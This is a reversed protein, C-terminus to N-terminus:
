HVELTVDLLGALRAGADTIERELVQTAHDADGSRIAGLIERHGPEYSGVGAKALKISLLYLVNKTQLNRLVNLILNHRCQEAMVLHFDVDAKVVGYTDGVRECEAMRVLADEMATLCAESLSGAGMAIRLAHCELLARFTYLERADESSLRAVFAGRHPFVEVLGEDRLLRFAERATGSAINLNRAIETERLSSGPGYEGRVISDRIRAAAASALTQPRELPGNTM